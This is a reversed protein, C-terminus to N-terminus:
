TYILLVHLLLHRKRCGCLGSSSNKTPLLSLLHRLHLHWLLNTTSRKNYVLDAKYLDCVCCHNKPGSNIYNVKLVQKKKSTKAINGSCVSLNLFDSYALDQGIGACVLVPVYLVCTYLDVM